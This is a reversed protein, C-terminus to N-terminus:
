WIGPLLRYRVRRTYETYGNLEQRLTRDELTTRLVFLCLLVAAPIFAWLSDLILPTALNFTIGGLYAPHRVYRYPGSTVVTHGRERQIRCILTFFRNSRMAWMALLSGAVAVGLTALQLEVPIRASWRHRMDLGAVIWIALPVYVTVLPALVKDWDKAEERIQRREAMLEPNSLALITSGTASLAAFVGIYVWAMVWDPRGSSVLLIALMIAAFSGIRLGSRLVLRPAAKRSSREAPPGANM